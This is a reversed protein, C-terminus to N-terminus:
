GSTGRDFRPAAVKEQWRTERVSSVQSQAAHAGVAIHSMLQQLICTAVDIVAEM